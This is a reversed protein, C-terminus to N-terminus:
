DTVVVDILSKEFNEIAIRICLGAIKNKNETKVASKFRTSLHSYKPLTFLQKIDINPFEETKFKMVDNYQKVAEETFTEKNINKRALHYPVPMFSNPFPVLATKFRARLYAGRSKGYIIWVEKGDITTNIVNNHGNIPYIFVCESNVNKLLHLYQEQTMIIDFREHLRQMFHLMHHEESHFKRTTNPFRKQSIETINELMNIIHVM